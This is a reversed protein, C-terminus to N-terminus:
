EYQIDALPDTDAPELPETGDQGHSRGAQVPQAVGSGRAPLQTTDAGLHLMGDVGVLFESTSKIV